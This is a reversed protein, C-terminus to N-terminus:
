ETRRRSGSLLLLFGFSSLPFTVTGFFRTTSRNLPGLNDPEFWCVFTDREDSDGCLLGWWVKNLIRFGVSIFKKNRANLTM